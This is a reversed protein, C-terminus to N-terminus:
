KLSIETGIQEGELARQLNRPKLGSFIQVKMDQNAQVLDLMRQVKTKMGGTVDAAHSVGVGGGILDMSSPTIKELIRDREPFHAWVGPESGALLIRYPRLDKALYSFLDETSFITGGTSGDFIVDGYVVPLLGATMAAKLPALQWSSIEGKDSFVAAVPALAVSAVGAARLAEMVLRDLASAQFWVEAFGRWYNDWAERDGNPTGMWHAPPFSSRFSISEPLGEKTKFEKAATHGFSGSGHGVIISLEPKSRKVRAIQQALDALIDLRPTYPSSKDTILSGGLKLFVLETM